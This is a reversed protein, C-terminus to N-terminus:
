LADASIIEGGSITGLAVWTPFNVTDKVFRVTGDLFAVNVGGPHYSSAGVANFLQSGISSFTCSKKNPAISHLYGGGEGMLSSIWRKGKFAYSPTNAKTQCDQNLQFDANATGYWSCSTSAGGSYVLSRGPTTLNGNGKVFESYAASNSTGDTVSALSVVGNLPGTLNGSCGANTSKGLFYTPGSLRLDTFRAERGITNPYSTAAGTANDTMSAAAPINGDSPCVFVSVTTVRVTNNAPADYGNTSNFSYNMANALAGQELFPLLRAKQGIYVQTRNGEGSDGCPPLAQNVDHYNQLALGLQKLNNVCQSRRAAERAAQVAPLLLAILVAIIAIVVLLEILTFGRPNPRQRM